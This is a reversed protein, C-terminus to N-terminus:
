SLIKIKCVTQFIMRQFYSRIVIINRFITKLNKFFNQYLNVKPIKCTKHNSNQFIKM